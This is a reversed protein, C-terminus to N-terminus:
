PWASSGERGVGLRTVTMILIAALYKTWFEAWAAVSPFFVAVRGTEPCSASERLSM